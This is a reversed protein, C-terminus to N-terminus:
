VSLGVSLEQNLSFLFSLVYYYLTLLKIKLLEKVSNGIQRAIAYMIKTAVTCKILTMM